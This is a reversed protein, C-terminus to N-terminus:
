CYFDDRPMYAIPYDELLEDLINEPPEVDIVVDADIWFFKGGRNIENAQIYSKRCFKFVDFQYGKIKSTSQIQPRKLYDVLGPM